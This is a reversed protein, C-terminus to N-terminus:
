HLAALSNICYEVKIQYLKDCISVYFSVYLKTCFCEVVNIIGLCLKLFLCDLIFYVGDKIKLLNM